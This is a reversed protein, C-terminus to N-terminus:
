KGIVDLYEPSFPLHRRNERRLQRNTLYPYRMESRSKYDFYFPDHERLYAEVEKEHEIEEIEKRKEEYKNM